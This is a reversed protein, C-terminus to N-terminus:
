DEEKPKYMKKLKKREEKQAKQQEKTWEKDEDDQSDKAKDDKKDKKDKSKEEDKEDKKKDDTKEPQEFSGDDVRGSAGHDLINDLAEIKKEPIGTLKMVVDYGNEDSNTWSGTYINNKLVLEMVGLPVDDEVMWKGEPTITIELKIYKKQDGFKYLGDYSLKKGGMDKMYRVYFKVPIENDFMGEYYKRDIVETRKKTDDEDNDSAVSLPDKKKASEAISKLSDSIGGKASDATSTDPHAAAWAFYKQEKEEKKLFDDINSAELINVVQGGFFGGRLKQIETITLCFTRRSLLDKLFIFGMFREPAILDYGELDRTPNAKQLEYRQLVVSSWVIGSDEGKGLVYSFRAIIDPNYRPDFEILSQPHEKLVALEKQAEPAPDTNHMVMHWLTDFPPFLNYYSATDKAQLCRIVNNISTVETKPANKSKRKLLHAQLVTTGLLISLFLVLFRKM